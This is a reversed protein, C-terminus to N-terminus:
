IFHVFVLLKTRKLFLSQIISFMSLPSATCFHTSIFREFIGLFKDAWITQGLGFTQSKSSFFAENPTRLTHNYTNEFTTQKHFTPKLYKTEQLSYHLSKICRFLVKSNIEFWSPFISDQCLEEEHRLQKM